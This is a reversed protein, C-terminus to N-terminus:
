VIWSDQFHERFDAAVVLIKVGEEIVVFSCLAGERQFMSQFGCHGRPFPYSRATILMNTVNGVAGGKRSLM